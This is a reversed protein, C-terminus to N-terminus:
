PAIFKNYVNSAVGTWGDVGRGTTLNARKYEQPCRGSGDTVAITINLNPSAGAITASNANAQGQRSMTYGAGDNLDGLAPTNVRSPVAFYDAVAAAIGNADKEAASCFSKNRYAVYNPIAIAALIGIIAVVIMLEILTFGKQNRVRSLM